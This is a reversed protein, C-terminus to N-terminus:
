LLALQVTRVEGAEIGQDRRPGNRDYSRGVVRVPDGPAGEPELRHSHDLLADRYM